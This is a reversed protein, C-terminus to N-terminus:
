QEGQTQDWAGTDGSEFDDSFLAADSRAAFRAALAVYPGQYGISNETIEWTRATWVTQDNWDRYFRNYFISGLPPIADGGYDKNPGGPVLGPAPGLTSVKDDSIGHNDVGDFYPYAPEMTAAPKGIYLASSSPSTSDGFWAHYLQFSSHEGGHAAMNTLYLMSLANQGHFFHLFDEAHARAAAVAHGGTEGLDAAELLFLGYWARISNSGWYYSWDPMGNRYLDDNAFIYDVQAGVSARMNAGVGPTAGPAALYSLAAHTDYRAPNFFRGSWQNPYFGDVYDRAATLDPRLRFLEAAAWVKVEADGEGQLWQWAALAAQELTAAYATQGAAAFARAARACTGAFVAGSELSPDHYFRVNTDASPPSASAFGDVHMQSLVSGDPLQMRLMWDLEWRVEDLLDSFGNGAEPIPMTGDAFLEPRQEWAQLLALVATSTASWVYKNYDGADHWGGTLDLAGHNAHGAAPGVAADGPHCGAADSWDGAWPAEKPTNCRQRYFTGFAARLPEWYVDEAIRFLYSRGGLAPSYLYYEGTAQLPSFDVWWIEDGSPAGDEGKHLISGGQSPIALVTAGATTRVEVAGGPDASVVAVKAAAPRYGFHDVKIALDVPPTGLLFAAQLWIAPLGTM